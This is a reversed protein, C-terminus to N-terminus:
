KTAGTLRKQRTGDKALMTFIEYSGTRNTQFALYQGEPSWSPWEDEGKDNATLNKKNGGDIDMTYIEWNGDRNSAFAIKTGDPSWRPTTDKAPNFTLQRINRGDSDMVFIETNGDSIESVYSIKKGDPSITPQFDANNSFTIRTWSLDTINMTYIEKNGDRDSAFVIYQSVAGEQISPTWSPDADWGVDRFTLRSFQKTEPDYTYIDLRKQGDRNSVFALREGGPTWAPETDIYNNTTLRTLNTGDASVIYLELNADRDSVFAIWQGDPSWAPMMNNPALPCGKNEKPGPQNPCEDSSDPIGDDDTDVPPETVLISTTATGMEGDSARVVLRVTYRGPKDYTHYVRVGSGTAGDGFDWEYSRITAMVVTSGSADFVVTLPADGSRPSATLQVDVNCGSVLGAVVLLGLVLLFTKKM